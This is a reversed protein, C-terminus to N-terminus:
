MTLIVDECEDILHFSTNIIRVLSSREEPSLHGFTWRAHATIENEKLKPYLLSTALNATMKYIM